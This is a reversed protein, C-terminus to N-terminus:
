DFADTDDDLWMLRIREFCKTTQRLPQAFAANGEDTRWVDLALADFVFRSAGNFNHALFFKRSADIQYEHETTIPRHDRRAAHQTVVLHGYDAYVIAAEAIESLKRDFFQKRSEFRNERTLVRNLLAQHQADLQPAAFLQHRAIAHQVVDHHILRCERPNDLDFSIQVLM